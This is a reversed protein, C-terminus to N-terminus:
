APIAVDIDCSHFVACSRNELVCFVVGFFSTIGEKALGVLSNNYNLFLSHLKSTQKGDVMLVFASADSPLGIRLINDSQSM